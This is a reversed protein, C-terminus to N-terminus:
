VMSNLKKTAATNGTQVTSCAVNLVSKNALTKSQELLQSEKNWHLKYASGVDASLLNVNRSENRLDFVVEAFDM